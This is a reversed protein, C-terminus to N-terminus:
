PEVLPVSVGYTEQYRRYLARREESSIRQRAWMGEPTIKEHIEPQVFGVREPALAAIVRALTGERDKILDEYALHVVPWGIRKFVGRWWMEKLVLSQRVDRIKELNDIDFDSKPRTTPEPTMDWFGSQLALRYSVAQALSDRRWLHVFVPQPLGSVSQWASHFFSFQWDICRIACWGDYCRRHVIEKLYSSYFDPADRSLQWRRSFQEVFIPGFYECSVGFGLHMLLRSLHHSGSRATAAIVVLRQVPTTPRDYEAGILALTNDDPMGLDSESATMADREHKCRM